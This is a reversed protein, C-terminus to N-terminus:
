NPLNISFTEIESVRQELDGVDLNWKSSKRKYTEAESSVNRVFMESRLNLRSLNAGFTGGSPRLTFPKAQSRSRWLNLKFPFVGVGQSLMEIWINRLSSRQWFSWNSESSTRKFTRPRCAEAQFDYSLFKHKSTEALFDKAQFDGCIQFSFGWASLSLKLFFVQVNWRPLEFTFRVHM